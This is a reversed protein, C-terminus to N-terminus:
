ILLAVKKARKKVGEPNGSKEGMKGEWPSVNQGGFDDKGEGDECLTLRCVGLLDHRRDSHGLGKAM